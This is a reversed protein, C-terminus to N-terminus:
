YVGHSRLWQQFKDMELPRLGTWDIPWGMLWESLNPNQKRGVYVGNQIAKKRANSGGCNDRDGSRPTPWLSCEKAHTHLVLPALRFCEGNHMMGWDPFTELSPELDEILWPQPTKWLFSKQDLKTFAAPWKRGCVLDHAQSEQGQDLTQLIRVHSGERLLTLWDKGRAGTSNKSTVSFQFGPFSATKKGHQYSKSAIRISKSRASANTDLSCTPLCGAALVRLYTSLELNTCNVPGKM